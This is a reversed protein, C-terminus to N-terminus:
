NRKNICMVSIDGRKNFFRRVCFVNEWNIKMKTNELENLEKWDTFKWKFQFYCHMFILFFLILIERVVCYSNKVLKCLKRENQVLIFVNTMWGAYFRAFFFSFSFFFVFLNGVIFSGLIFGEELRILCSRGDAYFCCVRHLRAVIPRITSVSPLNEM